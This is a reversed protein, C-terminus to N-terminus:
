KSHAATKEILLSGTRLWALGKKLTAGYGEAASDAIKHWFLTWGNEGVDSIVMGLDSAATAAVLANWEGTPMGRWGGHGARAPLRMMMDHAAAAAAARMVPFFLADPIAPIEMHTGIWIRTLVIRGEALVSDLFTIFAPPPAPAHHDCVLLVANGMGKIMTAICSWDRAGVPRFIATWNNEAEVCRLGPGEGTVLIKATYATGSIFEWPIWAHEADSVIYIGRGALSAGFGELEM